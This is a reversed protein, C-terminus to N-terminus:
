VQKMITKYKISKLRRQRPTLKVLEDGCLESLLQCHEIGQRFEPLKM